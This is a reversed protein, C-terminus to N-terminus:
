STKKENIIVININNITTTPAMNDHQRTVLDQKEEEGRNWHGRRRSWRRGRRWVLLGWGMPGVVWKLQERFEEEDEVDDPVAMSEWWCRKWGFQYPQWAALLASRHAATPGGGGGGRAGDSTSPGADSCGGVGGGGDEGRSTTLMVASAAVAGSHGSTAASGGGGDASGANPCCCGYSSGGDVAGAGRSGSAGDATGVAEAAALTSSMPKPMGGSTGAFLLKAARVLTAAVVQAALLFIENTSRAHDVFATLARRDM